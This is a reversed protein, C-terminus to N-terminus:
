AKSCAVASKFASLPKTSSTKAIEPTSSTKAIEPQMRQVARTWNVPHGTGRGVLGHPNPNPIAWAQFVSCLAPHPRSKNGCDEEKLCGQQGRNEQCQDTGTRTRYSRNDVDTGWLHSFVDLKQVAGEEEYGVSDSQSANNTINRSPDGRIHPNKPRMNRSTKPSKNALLFGM